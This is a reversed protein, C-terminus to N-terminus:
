AAHRNGPWNPKQYAPTTALRSIMLMYVAGFEFGVGVVPM